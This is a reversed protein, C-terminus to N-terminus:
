ARDELRHLRLDAGDLKQHVQHWAKRQFETRQELGPPLTNKAMKEPLSCPVHVVRGVYQGQVTRGLRLRLQNALRHAEWGYVPQQVVPYALLHRPGFEGKRSGWELVARTEKRVRGLEFVADKWNDFPNTQWILLRDQSDLGFAHPWDTETTFADWYHRAMTHLLTVDLVQANLDTQELQLSGWGNRSRGGLSGFWAMLRLAKCLDDWEDARGRHRVTLEAQEAGAGRIATRKPSGDRPGFTVPSRRPRDLAGFGLYLDAAVQGLSKFGGEWSTLEGASWQSLRLLVRSRLSRGGDDSASGFLDDEVRKLTHIDMPADQANYKVIRWWQRLASKFPPTRWQARQDAGGLFAPTLFSVKLTMESGQM